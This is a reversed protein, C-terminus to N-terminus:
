LKKDLLLCPPANSRNEATRAFSLMDPNNLPTPAESCAPCALSFSLSHKAWAIDRISLVKEYVAKAAPYDGLTVCLEGKLRLYEFINKPIKLIQSDCLAIARRYEKNSIARELRTRLVERTFPKILYDDPQYEVAGMVMQMNNEATIMMFVTSFKILGRHRVEEFVQQGDKRNYGLNYDCLIVDYEKKTILDIAAEGNTVDDVTVADFSQLMRRLSSRFEGFDDVILFKKYSFDVPM